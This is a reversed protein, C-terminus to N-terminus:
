GSGGARLDRETRERPQEQEPPRMHREQEPPRMTNIAELV